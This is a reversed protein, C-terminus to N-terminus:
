KIGEILTLIQVFIIIKEMTTKKDRIIYTSINEFNRYSTIQECINKSTEYFNSTRIKDLIKKVQINDLKNELQQFCYLKGKETFILSGSSIIQNDDNKYEIAVDDLIGVEQFYELEKQLQAMDDDYNEININNKTKDCFNNIENKVHNMMSGKNRIYFIVWQQFNTLEVFPIIRTEDSM